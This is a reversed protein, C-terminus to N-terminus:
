NALAVGAYKEATFNAICIAGLLDLPTLGSRRLGSVRHKSAALALQKGITANPSSCQYLNSRQPPVSCCAPTVSYLM